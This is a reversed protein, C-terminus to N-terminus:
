AIIVNYTNDTTSKILKLVRREETDSPLTIRSEAGIQKDDPVRIVVQWGKVMELAGKSSSKKTFTTPMLPSICDANFQDDNITTDPNLGLAEQHNQQQSKIINRINCIKSGCLKHAQSFFLPQTNM